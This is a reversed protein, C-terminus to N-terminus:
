LTIESLYQIILLLDNSSTPVCTEIEPEKSLEISLAFASPHLVNWINVLSGRPQNAGGRQFFSIVLKLFFNFALLISLDAVTACM